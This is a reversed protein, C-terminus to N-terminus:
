TKPPHSDPLHSASLSQKAKVRELSVGGAGRSHAQVDRGAEGDKISVGAPVATPSSENEGEANAEGLKTKITFKGKGKFRIFFFVILLALIIFSALLITNTDM